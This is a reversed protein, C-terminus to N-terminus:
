HYRLQILLALVVDPLPGLPHDAVPSKLWLGVHLMQSARDRSRAFPSARYDDAAARVQDKREAATEADSDDGRQFYADLTDRGSAADRQFIGGSEDCLGVALPALEDAVIELLGIGVRQKVIQDDVGALQRQFGGGLQDVEGGDGAERVYRGMKGLRM